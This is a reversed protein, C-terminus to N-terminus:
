DHDSGAGSGAGDEETVTAAADGGAPSGKAARGINLILSVIRAGYTYLLFLDHHCIM